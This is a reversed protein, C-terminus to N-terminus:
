GPHPAETLVALLADRTPSRENRRSVLLTDVTCLEHTTMMEPRPLLDLVSRPMIGIATGTAVSALMAHYSGLELTRLDSDKRAWGEAIRRYTCGPELAALTDVRVDAATRIEPHDSPLVILLEETFVREFALREDDFLSEARGAERPIQAVLAGDLEHDLVRQALEQTPGITLKLSVEPWRARFQDMMAPLRSAATSEMTGLRFISALGSQRVAQRAEEALALLRHAYALFTEGERTLNMRKSDRGFLAIGLDQELRQIRTTVNSPARGLRKAALTVGHEAAVACFIELSSLDL